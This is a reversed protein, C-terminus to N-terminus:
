KLAGGGGGGGGGGRKQSTSRVENARAVASASQLSINLAITTM